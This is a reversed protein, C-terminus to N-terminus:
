RGAPTSCAVSGVPVTGRATHIKQINGQRKTSDTVRNWETLVRERERM